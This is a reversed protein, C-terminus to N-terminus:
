TYPARRAVVNLRVYDIEPRPLRAAVARVFPAQEAPPLRELHAGLVVTRLYTELPEGADLPTPEPHLWAEVDRFGGAELHRRTEEPTAFTWPGTWGDGTHRLAELVTAINGVGGYQAVLQGGPPLIAALHRFLADHDAVWHFTATSFVATTGALPLPRALDACVLAVRDRYPALRRSAQALMRPSRDLGMVRGQPLRQVLAETVRGSGCGADLVHEDGRLELRALVDAGWRVHPNSVRDYTAADWEWREGKRGAPEGARGQGGASGEGGTM